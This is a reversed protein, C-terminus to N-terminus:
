RAEVLVILVSDFRNNHLLLVELAQHDASGLGLLETNVAFHLLQEFTSLLVLSRLVLSHLVLQLSQM